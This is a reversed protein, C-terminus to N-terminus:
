WYSKRIGSIYGLRSISLFSIRSFNFNKAIKSNRGTLICRKNLVVKFNSRKSNYLSFNANIRISNKLKLNKSIIKKTFNLSEKKYFNKRNNKDKYLFKNM